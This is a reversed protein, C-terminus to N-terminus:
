RFDHLGIALKAKEGFPDPLDNPGITSIWVTARWAKPHPSKGTMTLSLKSHVDGRDSLKLEAVYVREMDCDDKVPDCTFKPGTGCGALAAAITLGLITGRMM